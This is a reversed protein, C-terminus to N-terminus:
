KKRSLVKLILLAEKLSGGLDELWEDPKQPKVKFWFTDTGSSGTHQPQHGIVYEYLISKKIVWCHAEHPSIGLAIMFEYNQDRIQQFRYIGSKWLTSFKVEVRHGNLLIDAESDPSSDTKIGQAGCWSSILRIAFKGKTGPSLTKVWQFPSDEWDNDKSIFEDKILEASSALFSFSADHKTM